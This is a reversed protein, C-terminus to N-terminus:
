ELKSALVEGERKEIPEVPVRWRFADLMGTVPSVPSWHEAVVGDATWAPDRPANVARALWERVRGKDGHEEGEIRAMLTAVRQTMRDDLLPKLASRADDFQHAEIAATAVAIPGEISNPTLAALQKM